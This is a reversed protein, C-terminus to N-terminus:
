KIKNVGNIKLWDCLKKFGNKFFLTPCREVMNKSYGLDNLFEHPLAGMVTQIFTVFVIGHYKKKFLMQLQEFPIGYADLDIVDYKNLDIAELYKNNDGLLMFCDDKQEKDIKLINIKGGYQEQINKWISGSGHYADVVRLFEKKPINNIRLAIKDALFSNDTQKQKM